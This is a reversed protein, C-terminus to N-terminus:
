STQIVPPAVAVDAARNIPLQTVTVSGPREDSYELLWAGGNPQDIDWFADPTRGTAHILIVRNAHGHGSVLVTEGPHNHVIRDIGPGIRLRVQELSEGGPFAMSWPTETWQRSAGDPWEHPARGQWDGYS